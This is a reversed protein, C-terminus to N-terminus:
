IDSGKIYAVCGHLKTPEIGIVMGDVAMGYLIGRFRVGVKIGEPIFESGDEHTPMPFYVNYGLSVVGSNFLKDAKQIDCKTTYLIVEHPQESNLLDGDEPLIEENKYFVGDYEYETMANRDTYM